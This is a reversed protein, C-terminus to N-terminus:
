KSLFFDSGFQLSEHSPESSATNLHQNNESWWEFGFIMTIRLVSIQNWRGTWTWNMSWFYSIWKYPSYKNALTLTLYFKLLDQPFGEWPQLLLLLLHEGTWAALPKLALSYYFNNNYQVTSYQVTWHPIQCIHVTKDDYYSQSKPSLRLKTKDDKCYEDSRIRM